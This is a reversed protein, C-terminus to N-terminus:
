VSSKVVSTCINFGQHLKGWLQYVQKSFVLHVLLSALILLGSTPIILSFQLQLRSSPVVQQVGFDVFKSILALIGQSSSAVLHQPRVDQFSM